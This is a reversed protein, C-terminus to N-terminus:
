NNIVVDNDSKVALREKHTEDIVNHMGGVTHPRENEIIIKGDKTGHLLAHIDRELEKETPQESGGGKRRFFERLYNFVSIAQPNHTRMAMQRVNAYYAIAMSYTENGLINMSTLADSTIANLREVLSRMFLFDEEVENFAELDLFNPLFEPNNNASNNAATMFGFNRFGKGVFNRRFTSTLEEAINRMEDSVAEIKQMLSAKSEGDMINRLDLVHMDVHDPVPTIAILEQHTPVSVKETKVVENVKKEHM